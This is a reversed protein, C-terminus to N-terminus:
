KAYTLGRKDGYIEEFSAQSLKESIDHFSEMLLKVKDQELGRAMFRLLQYVIGKIYDELKRGEETLFLLKQRHDHKGRTRYILNKKELNKIVRTIVAKDLYLYNAMDDQSCGENDYLKLLIVFESYTLGIDSCAEVVLAQTRRRVVSFCYATDLFDM